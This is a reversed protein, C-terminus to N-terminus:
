RRKKFPKIILGQGTAMTLIQVGKEKAFSDWAIRQEDYSASFAYDDLVIMAGPVLKDWFYEGAKIEPYVLNMDISLFAIKKSSVQSLTDPVKGKVIIVNDFDKFTKTVSEFTGRYAKAM